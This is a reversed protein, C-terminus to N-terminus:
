SLLLTSERLEKIVQWAQELDRQLGQEAFPLLRCVYKICGLLQRRLQATLVLPQLGAVYIAVAARSQQEPSLGGLLYVEQLFHHMRFLARPDVAVNAPFSLLYQQAMGTFQGGAAVFLNFLQAPKVTLGVYHRALLEPLLEAEYRAPYLATLFKESSVVNDYPLLIQTILMDDSILVTQPHNALFATDMLLDFYEGRDPDNLEADAQRLIKLKEPVLRMQCHTRVWALLEQLQAIEQAHFDPPYFQGRVVSGAVHVTARPAPSRQKYLLLEELASVLQASVWLSTPLPLQMRKSLQHLLPLTSWDLVYTWDSEIALHDYQQRPPVYFGPGGTSTFFQYAELGNGSFTNGAFVSFGTEGRSYEVLAQQMEVQRALGDAGFERVLTQELGAGSANELNFSQMSLLGPERRSQALIDHFLATYPDTIALVRGTLRRARLRDQTIFTDGVSLGVLQTAVPHQGSRLIPATLHLPPREEGEITYRVVTGVTAATLVAPERDPRGFVLLQFFKDRAAINTPDLALPYVLALALDAAQARLALAALNLLQQASFEAPQNVIAQLLPRLQERQGTHYLGLLHAYRFRTDEPFAQGAAEAVSAVLEWDGLQQSFGIEWSSLQSDLGYHERWHALDQRLAEGEGLQYRNLLGLRKISAVLEDPVPPFQALLEALLQHEQLGGYLVAAQHWYHISVEPTLLPRAQTLLAARHERSAPNHYGVSAELLLRPLPSALQGRLRCGAVFAERQEESDCFLGLYVLARHFLINELAGQRSLHLALSAQADTMRELEYLLQFRLYESHADWSTDVEALVALAAEPGAWQSLLCAWVFGRSQKEAASLRPFVVQYDAFEAEDGTLLYGVMGRLFFYSASRPALESHRVLDAYRVLTQHAATLRPTAALRDPRQLPQLYDELHLVQQPVLLALLGQFRRNAVTLTVPAEGYATLEAAVVLQSDTPRNSALLLNALMYKFEESGAVGVPVTTLRQALESTTDAQLFTDVAWGVPSHTTALLEPLLVKAQTVVGSRAYALAAREAYLPQQPEREHALQFPATSLEHQGTEALAYGLLFQFRAFLANHNRYHQEVHPLLGRLLELATFPRFGEIFDQEVRELLFLLDNAGSPQTVLTRQLEAFQASLAAFHAETQQQGLFIAEQYNEAIFLQRLVSDEDLTAWLRECFATLELQTPRILGPVAPLDALLLPTPRAFFRYALVREWTWPLQWFFHTQGAAPTILSYEEAELFVALQQQLRKRYNPAAFVKNKLRIFVEKSTEQAALKALELGTLYTIISEASIDLLM